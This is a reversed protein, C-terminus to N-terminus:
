GTLLGAGALKALAPGSAAHTGDLRALLGAEAPGLAITRHWQSVARADRSAQTRALPTAHPCPGPTGTAQPPERVLKVVGFAAAELLAPAADPPLQTVPLAGPWADVLAELADRVPGPPLRVTGGEPTAFGEDRRHLMAGAHLGALRDPDPDAMGRDGRTLLVQRHSASPDVPALAADGLLRLGSERQVQLATLPENVDGLDDHALLHDPAHRLAAVHRALAGDGAALEDGALLERARALRARPDDIGTLAPLLRARLATRVQGANFSVFAVGTGPRLCAGILNLAAQRVAPPVWSVLGHAIVLDFSGLEDADLATLDAARLDANVLGAAAALERGREVAGPELDIGVVEAGPLSQAIGLANGGDACGLDLVRWGDIPPLAVGHLQAVAAVHRPHTRLFADGPYPIAAYAEAISPM